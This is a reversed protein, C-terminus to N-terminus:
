RRRVLQVGPAANGSSSAPQYMGERFFIDTGTTFAVANVAQNLEHAKHDTHIRVASLDAGFASEMRPMVQSDVPQGSGRANEIDAQVEPAVEAGAEGKRALTLVKQVHQNGYARQMQLLLREASAPTRALRNLLASQSRDVAVAPSFMGAIPLASSASRAAGGTPGHAVAVLPRPPVRDTHAIVREYGM